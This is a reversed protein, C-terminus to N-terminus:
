VTERADASRGHRLAKEAALALCAGVTAGLTDAAWDLVDPTRMWVFHQHFEDTIGYLSAIVIAASLANSRSLDIRLAAYLLAGFVAYEGLHGYEAAGGPIVSGPLASFGFIVGAWALTAAWCLVRRLTTRSANSTSTRDKPM